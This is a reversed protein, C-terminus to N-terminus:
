SEIIAPDKCLGRQYDYICNFCTKLEPHQAVFCDPWNKGVHQASCKWLLLNAMDSM